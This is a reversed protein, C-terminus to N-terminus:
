RLGCAKMRQYALDRADDSVGLAGSRWGEGDFGYFRILSLGLNSSDYSQELGLWQECPVSEIEARSDLAGSRDFDYRALLWRRADEHWGDELPSREGAGSGQAGGGSPPQAAAVAAPAAPSKPRPARAVAELRPRIGLVQRPAVEVIGEWSRYGRKAVRVEHEGAAVPHRREGTPGIADGDISLEDEAVNSHVVVWGTDGCIEPDIRLQEGGAVDLDQEFRDRCDPHSVELSYAGPALWYVSDDAAGEAVVEASEGGRTRVVLSAGEVNSDVVLRARPGADRADSAGGAGADPEEADDEGALAFGGEGGGQEGGAGGEVLVRPGLFSDDRVALWTVLGAAVLTAIVAWGLIWRLTQPGPGRGAPSGASLTRWADDLDRLEAIRQLRRPEDPADRLRQEVHARLAHFAARVENADASESLGLVQLARSRDSM